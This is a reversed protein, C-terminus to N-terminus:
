PLPKRIADATTRGMGARLTVERRTHGQSVLGSANSRDNVQTDRASPGSAPRPGLAAVTDAYALREAEARVLGGEFERIGAREDFFAQWDMEQTGTDIQHPVPPVRPVTDTLIQQSQNFINPSGNGAVNWRDPFKPFLGKSHAFDAFARLDPM